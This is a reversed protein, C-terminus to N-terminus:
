CHRQHKLFSMHRTPTPSRAMSGLDLTPQPLVTTINGRKYQGGRWQENKSRRRWITHSFLIAEIPVITVAGPKGDIASVKGFELAKGRRWLHPKRVFALARAKAVLNRNWDLPAVNNVDIATTLLCAVLLENLCNPQRFFGNRSAYAHKRNPPLWWMFSLKWWCPSDRNPTDM